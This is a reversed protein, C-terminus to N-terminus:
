VGDGQSLIHTQLYKETNKFSIEFREIHHTPIITSSDGTTIRNRADEEIARAVDSFEMAGIAAATNKLTHAITQIEGLRHERIAASIRAVLRASDEIFYEVIKTFKEGMVERYSYLVELDFGEALKHPVSDPGRVSHVPKLWQSL